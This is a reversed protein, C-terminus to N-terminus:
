ESRAGWDDDAAGFQYQYRRKVTIAWSYDGGSARVHQRDSGAKWTGLSLLSIIAHSKQFIETEKFSCSRLNFTRQTYTCATSLEIGQMDATEYTWNFPVQFFCGKSEMAFKHGLAGHKDRRPQPDGLPQCAQWLCYTLKLYTFTLGESCQNYKIQHYISLSFLNIFNM